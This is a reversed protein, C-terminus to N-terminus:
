QVSCCHYHHHVGSEDGGEATAARRTALESRLARLEDVLEKILADSAAVAGGQGPAVTTSTGVQQAHDTSKIRNILTEAFAEYYEDSHAISKKTFAQRVVEPLTAIKEQPPFDCKDGNTTQWRAGEKTILVVNKNSRVAAALEKICWESDFVSDTLVFLVNTSRGVIAELDNLEERFEFDLFCKIGRMTLLNYLARAFDKADTRKHSIFVDFAEGRPSEAQEPGRLEGLVSEAAARLKADDHSAFAEISQLQQSIEEHSAKVTALLALARLADLRVSYFMEAQKVVREPPNSLATFLM